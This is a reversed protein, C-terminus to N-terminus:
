QKTITILREEAQPGRDYTYRFQFGNKRVIQGKTSKYTQLLEAEASPAYLRATIKVLLEAEFRDAHLGHGIDVFSDSWTVRVDEVRGSGKLENIVFKATGARGLVCSFLRGSTEPEPLGIKARPCFVESLFRKMEDDFTGFEAGQALAPALCFSAALLYGLTQM